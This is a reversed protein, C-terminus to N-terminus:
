EALSDAAARDPRLYAASPSGAPTFIGLVSMEHGPSANEVIHIQRPRLRFAAGTELEDVREEVHLRGPGKPVWLIEDYLHYHWPAKGPPIFGVFLTARTSGNDPGFLIKFSRAGTARDSGVGDLQVVVERTGLPAHRDASPGVTARVFALGAAGAMLTAQESALILAGAGHGLSHSENGFALTGAGEHVFLLTDAVGDAPAFTEGADLEVATLALESDDVPPVLASTTPV